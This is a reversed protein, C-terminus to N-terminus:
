RRMDLLLYAVLQGPGHYTIQGGRDTRIVPIGNDIRPLHEAKGATGLTYVAPHELIWLEDSADASRSNTYAQMARWTPVYEVLGLERVHLHLIEPPASLATPTDSMM